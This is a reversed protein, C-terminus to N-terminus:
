CLVVTVVSKNREELEQAKRNADNANMQLVTFAAEKELLFDVEEEGGDSTRSRHM